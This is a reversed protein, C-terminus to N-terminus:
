KKKIERIQIFFICKVRIELFFGRFVGAGADKKCRLVVIFL